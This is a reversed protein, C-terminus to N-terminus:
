EDSSNREIESLANPANRAATAFLSYKRSLKRAESSLWLGSVFTANKM